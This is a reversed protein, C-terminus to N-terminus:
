SLFAHSKDERTNREIEIQASTVLNVGSLSVLTRPDLVRANCFCSMRLRLEPLGKSRKQTFSEFPSINFGRCLGEAVRNDFPYHYIIKLM